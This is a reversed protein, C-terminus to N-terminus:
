GCTNTAAPSLGMAYHLQFTPSGGRFKSQGKGDIVLQYAGQAAPSITYNGSASDTEGASAISYDYSWSGQTPGSPTFHIDFTVRRTAMTIVFPQTVAFPSAVACATGKLTEGGLNMTKIVQFATGGSTGASGAGGSGGAGATAEATPEITAENTAEPTAAATDFLTIQEPLLKIPLPRALTMDYPHASSPPGAPHLNADMPITVQTGAPVDVSVTGVTVTGHGEVVTMTMNGSVQAQLFATSGLEIGVDNARLDIKGAGQPTQILIGDEPAQSCGPQELGTSFYFAQMPKYTAEVSADVVPLTQVDGSVTVLGASVWGTASSDPVAIRLWSGDANRGNATVTEKGALTGLIAASTSPTSRINMRSKATISQGVNASSAGADKIDVDGFLLFTVNQGPLTDPLNAQVKMVAIGWTNKVPDLHSLRLDELDTLNTLDGQKSFSFNQVNERPTAQLLVFGYCAQNRGISACDQEVSSVGREVIDPCTAAQAAAVAIFLLAFLPYAALRSFRM